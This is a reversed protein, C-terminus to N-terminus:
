WGIEANPGDFDLEENDDGWAASGILVEPSFISQVFADLEAAASPHSKREARLWQRYEGVLKALDNRTSEDPKTKAVM